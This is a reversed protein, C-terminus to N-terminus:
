DFLTLDVFMTLDLAIDIDHMRRRGLEVLEADIALKMAPATVYPQLEVDDLVLDVRAPKGEFVQRDASAVRKKELGDAEVFLELSELYSLDGDEPAVVRLAGKSLRATKVDSPKVGKNEIRRSIESGGPFGRSMSIGPIRSATGPITVEASLEIDFQDLSACGALAVALLCAARM